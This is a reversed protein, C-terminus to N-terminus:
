AAEVVVGENGLRDVTAADYGAEALIARTHQGLLPPALDSVMPLGDMSVLAGPQTLRGYRPHPYSAALGLEANRRDSLFAESVGTRAPAASAGAAHALRLGVDVTDAAFLAELDPGLGALQIDDAVLALWGDACAYLRRGPGVGTQLADVPPGEGISGDPRVIVVGSTTMISAGLISATVLQGAGTTRRAILALLTGYAASMACQHDMMGYRLWDPRNGEGSCASEWGSLAQFLQDYGPWDKRPGHSGYASCHTYILRPNIASLTAYDIGLREAAPLRLNHLVVDAERVLDHVIARADPLKLNLALARKGRQCGIFAWEFPRMADGELSEIKIVEAGLDAMLMTAFPGALHQGFDIVRLGALPKAAPPAGSPAPRQPWGPAAGGARPAPGKIAMPPVLGVIPGPQLLPGLDPDDIEAVYGMERAQADQYIQGLEMAPQVSIDAAWLAELWAGSPHALFAEINAGLNPFLLHEFGMAQNLEAVREPGMRDLEARMLPVKEPAAMVHVWVGDACEFVSNRFTKPWGAALSPSPTEALRWHTMVQALGGQLL